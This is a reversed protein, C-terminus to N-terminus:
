EDAPSAATAGGALAQLREIAEPEGRVRFLAGTEDGQEDLV